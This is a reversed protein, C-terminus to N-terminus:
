NLGEIAELPYPLAAPIKVVWLRASGADTWHRHPQGEPIYLIENKTLTFVTGGSLSAARIEENNPVGNRDTHIKSNQMIGGIEFHITGEICIWADAKTRHMEVVSSEKSTNKDVMISLPVGASRALSRFPELSISGDPVDTFDRLLSGQVQIAPFFSVAQPNRNM